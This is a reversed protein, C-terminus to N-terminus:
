TTVTVKDTNEILNLVGWDGMPKTQAEFNAREMKIGLVSRGQNRIPLAEKSIQEDYGEWISM